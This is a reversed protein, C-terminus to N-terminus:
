AFRVGEGVRAIDIRQFFEVEVLDRVLDDVVRRDHLDVVGACPRVRDIRVAIRVRTVRKEDRYGEADQLGLHDIEDRIQGRGLDACVVRDSHPAPDLENEFEIDTPTREPVITAHVVECRTTVCLRAPSRALEAGAGRVVDKGTIDHSVMRVRQGGQAFRGRGRLYKCIDVFHEGARGCGVREDSANEM